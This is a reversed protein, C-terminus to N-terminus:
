MTHGHRQEPSDRGRRERHTHSRSRSTGRAACFVNSDIVDSTVPDGQGQDPSDFVRTVEVQERNSAVHLRTDGNNNQTAVDASHRILIHAVEVEGDHSALHLPTDGDSNRTAVNAGHEIPFRPVKLHGNQSALHFPVIDNLFSRTYMRHTSLSSSSQQPIHAASLQIIYPPEPSDRRAKM